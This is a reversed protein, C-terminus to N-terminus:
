VVKTAWAFIVRKLAIVAILMQFFDIKHGPPTQPQANTHTTVLYLLHKPRSKRGHQLLHVTVGGGGGWLFSRQKKTSYKHNHLTLIGRFKIFSNKIGSLISGKNVILYFSRITIWNWHSEM